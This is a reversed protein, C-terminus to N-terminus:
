FKELRAIGHAAFATALREFDDRPGTTVAL